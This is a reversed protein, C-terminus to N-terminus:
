AARVIIPSPTANSSSLRRLCRNPTSPLRSPKVTDGIAQADISAMVQAIRACQETYDSYVKAIKDNNRDMGSESELSQYEMVAQIADRRHKVRRRADTPTRNELGRSCWQNGDCAGVMMRRVTEDNEHHIQHLEARSYYCNYHEDETFEDRSTYEFAVVKEFFSVSRRKRKDVRPTQPAAEKVIVSSSADSASTSTSSSSHSSFFNFLPQM